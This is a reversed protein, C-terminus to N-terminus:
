ERVDFAARAVPLQVAVGHFLRQVKVVGPHSSGDVLATASYELRHTIREAGNKGTCFTGQVSRQGGLSGDRTLIPARNTSQLNAHRNM